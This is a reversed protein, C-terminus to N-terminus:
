LISMTSLVVMGTDPGHHNVAEEIRNHCVYAHQSIPV